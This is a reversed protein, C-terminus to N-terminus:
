GMNVARQDFMLGYTSTGILYHLIWQVVKWHEKGSKSMFRSVIIVAYAIDPRTCFWLM